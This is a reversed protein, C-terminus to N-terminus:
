GVPHYGFAFATGEKIKVNVQFTLALQEAQSQRSFVSDLRENTRLKLDAAPRLPSRKRERRARTTYDARTLRVLDALPGGRTTAQDLRRQLQM